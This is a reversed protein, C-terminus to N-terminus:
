SQRYMVKRIGTTTELNELFEQSFQGNSNNLTSRITFDGELPMTARQKDLDVFGNFFIFLFVGWSMSIVILFAQAKNRSINTIIYRLRIAKPKSLLRNEGYRFREKRGFNDNVASIPPILSAR